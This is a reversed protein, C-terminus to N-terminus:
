VVRNQPPHMENIPSISNHESVSGAQFKTTEGDGLRYAGKAAAADISDVM